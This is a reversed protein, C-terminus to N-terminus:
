TKHLMRSVFAFPMMAIRTKKLTLAPDYRTQHFGIQQTKTDLVAFGALGQPARTTGVAQVVAMWRGQDLSKEAGAAVNQATVQGADDQHFLAAERAHGCIIWRANTAAFGLKASDCDKVYNWDQPAHASAHVFLIDELQVTLPLESLFLRQRANLRNVTWDVLKRAPESLKDEPTPWYRDHNGRVCLAGKSVLDEVQDLCWDLDPGYGVLDGLFVLQDIQRTALDALVAAFAERNAHIDTLIGIRM